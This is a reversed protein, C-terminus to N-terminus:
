GAAFRAQHWAILGTLEDLVVDAGAAELTARDDGGTTVAVCLARNARAAEVDHVTDGVVVVPDGPGVGSRRAAQAVLEARLPSDCGYGGFGFHASLGARELKLQAGRQVNGTAVGLRVTPQAGLWRLVPEAGPLVRFNPGALEGDLLDLYDRIVADIEDATGPRGLGAMFMDAVIAPDTRGHFRVGRCADAVGHRAAFVATLARSGAGGARVLTGDLDFLYAIV